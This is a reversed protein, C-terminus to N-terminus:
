AKSSIADVDAIFAALVTLKYDLPHMTHRTTTLRRLSFHRGLISQKTTSSLVHETKPGRVLYTYCM